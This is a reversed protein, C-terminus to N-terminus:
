CLGKLLRPPINGLVTKVGDLFNKLGNKELVVALQLALTSISDVDEEHYEQVQDTYMRLLGVVNKRYLIPVSLMSKIGEQRAAEPYHMLPSAQMDEIYVPEKTFFASYKEDMVVPGKGTYADSLGHSAVRFLQKEREDFLMICCGKLSFTRCLGEVIHTFLLNLDEYNSIARSIAKFEKLYFKREVQRIM